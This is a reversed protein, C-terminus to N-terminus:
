GRSLWDARASQQLPPALAAGGLAGQRSPPDRLPGSWEGRPTRERGWSRDGGTGRFPRMRVGCFAGRSGEFTGEQSGACPEEQGRPARLSPGM